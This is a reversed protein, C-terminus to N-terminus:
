ACAFCRPPRWPAAVSLLGAPPSAVESPGAGQWQPNPSPLCPRHAANGVGLPLRMVVSQAKTRQRTLPANQRTLRVLFCPCARLANQQTAANAGIPFRVLCVAATTVAGIARCAPAQPIPANGLVCSPLAPAPPMFGSSESSPPPSVRGASYDGCIASRVMALDPHDYRGDFVKYSFLINSFQCLYNFLFLFRRPGITLDTIKM